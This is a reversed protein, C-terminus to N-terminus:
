QTRIYYISVEVSGAVVNTFDANSTVTLVPKVTALQLKVGSPVGSQVGGAATTFVNITGTMYRDVTTGDGITMTASTDGTFGLPVKVKTGLIVSGAPIASALTKTGVTAGGDTFQSILVTEKVEEVYSRGSASLIGLAILNKVTIEELHQSAM